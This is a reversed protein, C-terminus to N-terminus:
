LPTQPVTRVGSIYYKGPHAHCTNRSGQKHKVYVCVCCVCWVIICKGCLQEEVFDREFNRRFM